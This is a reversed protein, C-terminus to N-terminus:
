RSGSVDAAILEGGGDGVAEPGAQPWMRRCPEATVLERDQELVKSVSGLGAVHGLPCRHVRGGIRDASPRPSRSVDADGYALRAIVPHRLEEPVGGERHVLRLV